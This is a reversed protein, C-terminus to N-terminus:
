SPRRATSATARDPVPGAGALAAFAAIWTRVEHASNGAEHASGTTRGATSTPSSAATLSKSSRPSGMGPQAAAAPERRARLRACGGDGRAQRAQRQEPTMPEGYCSGDRAGRAPRHGADAGASRPVAWRIRGRAGAQGADGSLQRGRHRARAVRRLPGLPTAVSNIFIPIVPRATPTASCRRCRSFRATTSTWARRSRSTSTRTSCRKPWDTAIDGPVDLPGAQRATTASARPAGHRHLVAADDPLLVGNYHDPSFIVVLEPDYDRVFERAEALAAEIDDLLDRSPGPLNLLPSHSM